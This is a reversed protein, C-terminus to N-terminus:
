ENGEALEFIQSSEVISTEAQRRSAVANIMADAVTDVHVPRYNRAGPMWAFLRFVSLAIREGIRTETREGALFSPRFIITRQFELKLVAEELHGKMWSYFLRSKSSAGISSILVYIPVDNKRAAAAANYQYDYDIVWQAKKGGAKKRTTGLASFLVDGVLRDAWQEQHDFDVIHQTLKPHAMQMDRRVFCHVESYTENSLLKTLLARGTLGTAGVILAKKANM